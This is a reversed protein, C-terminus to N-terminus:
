REKTQVAKEIQTPAIRHTICCPKLQLQGVCDIDHMDSALILFKHFDVLRVAYSRTNM